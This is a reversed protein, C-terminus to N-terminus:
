ELVVYSAAVMKWNVVAQVGLTLQPDGVQPVISHAHAFSSVVFHATTFHDSLFMQNIRTNNEADLVPRDNFAPMELKGALYFYNGPLILGEEGTFAAPSDNRLELFLYISEETPSPLVITRFAPLDDQADGYRLYVGEVSGDYLYREADADETIPTFDYRQPFQSGIIIGTVPFNTSGAAWITCSQGAADQVTTSNARVTVEFKGCGYQLPKDFAVAHAENTVVTGLTYHSLISEWSASATYYRSIEQDLSTHLTTHSVYYLGPMYCYRDIPAIGDLGQEVVEFALGNWRLVAAGAPLGISRPYSRLPVNGFFVKGNADISLTAANELDYFHQKVVDRLGNYLDAYTVPTVGDSMYAQYYVGDKMHWYYDDDDSDYQDLSQYLQTLLDQLNTAAGSILQGNNTFRLFHNRLTQDALNANWAVAVSGDQWDPSAPDTKYKYSQTYSAAQAIYSLIGALSTADAPTTGNYITEPTFRIGAATRDNVSLGSEILHGTVQKDRGYVLVRSTGQPLTFYDSNYLIAAVNQTASIDPLPRAPGLAQDDDGAFPLVRIAELGQFDDTIREPRTDGAKTATRARELSFSLQLPVDAAGTRDSLPLSEVCSTILLLLMWGVILCYRKRM